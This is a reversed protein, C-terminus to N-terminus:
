GSAASVFVKTTVGTNTATNINAHVVNTSGIVIDKSNDFIVGAATEIIVNTTDGDLATKLTGTVTGQTVTVGASETITQSTIALTWENQLATKLTGVSTGQTVAVDADQTIAQAAITLTWENQSVTVGSSETIAESNIDLIWENQTVGVNKEETIGVSNTTMSWTMYNTRQQTPVVNGDLFLGASSFRVSEYKPEFLTLTLDEGLGNRGYEVIHDNLISIQLLVSSVYPPFWLRGVKPVYDLHKTATTGHQPISRYGILGSMTEGVFGPSALPIQTQSMPYHISDSEIVHNVYGIKLLEGRYMEHSQDITTNIYRHNHVVDVRGTIGSGYAQVAFLALGCGDERHSQYQRNLLLRHSYTHTSGKGMTNQRFITEASMGSPDDILISTQGGIKVYDGHSM